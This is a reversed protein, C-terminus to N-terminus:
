CSKKLVENTLNWQLDKNILSSINLHMKNLAYNFITFGKEWSNSFLIHAFYPFPDNKSHKLEGQCFILVELKFM